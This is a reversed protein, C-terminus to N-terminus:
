QAPSPWVCGWNRSTSGKQTGKLIIDDHAQQRTVRDGGLRYDRVTHAIVWCAWRFRMTHKWFPGDMYFDECPREGLYEFQMVRCIDEREDEGMYGLIDERFESWAPMRQDKPFEHQRFVQVAMAKLSDPDYEEIGGHKDAAECKQGWYRYDITPVKRGWDIDMFNFMDHVRSFVFSGMDGTYILYGPTTTINFHMNMTGPKAMRIHRFVGNDQIVQMRHDKIDRLVRERDATQNKYYDRM